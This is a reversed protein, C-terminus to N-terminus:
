HKAAAKNNNLYKKALVFLEDKTISNYDDMITRSWELQQPHKVSGSLVTNLWYNNNRMMDKISTIMPDVARRLEDNNPGTEALDSVIKKIENIIMNIDEPAVQVFAQFVGYGSYVRSARNYAVFSYAAGLKERIKERLRDSLIDALVSFLRTRHIDWLDETPYAVVVLGKDIKTAVNIELSQAVPFEPSDLRKQLYINRRPSLTGLYKSVIEITSNVDFDGVVSVELTGHRLPSDVWSKVDDLTLNKFIDYPPLGFRSDGGALFRKGTLNIAGDISSSLKLYKQQFREMTLKCADERYGPDTLHAYLLQFLLRLEKSVTKGRFYFSEEGVGFFVNTNKGAMAREIEDRDLTGLGSENIVARSLFALGPRNLPEVSRGSGFSLNVLVEDAEFDTKKLNLRVNNEFDVQVIGLDAIVKRSIVKGNKQPEPLYPFVVSEMKVPRLVKMSSSKNFAALILEEPDVGAAGLDVNGTVLVLRHEPQWIKIFLDHVDKLTLSDIVPAFLNKKQEPSMSVMDTNLDRIIERSLAGSDRTQAKNFVKDLDSLFDKKVRELESKTFGYKLAKRLNQEILWLTKEWNEPSSKATIEAFEIQGMFVGSMISASTFPTDPKGVLLDLRNQVIRNAIDQVLLRKQLDLSDPKKTVKKVVEISVTTKGSEKEFHYFTKVGNHNVEGIYPEQGAPSRASLDSFKKEILSVATKVEFDGVMVLIMKEPCYWTDYFEKLLKQDANKIVDEMGIPFRKSIKAEPFEFKMTSIFTRYSVSDRTRKEALVVKSERDIESELLLASDAFDKLVAIGKEISKRSGQPLLIDYVTEYYGTHANADPGFKMGISQFYKVLQGPKFHASGCFVMHELFHALGQQEDTENISGVQVNLHMSVRGKPKHNEMLVYRFGNPLRGFVLSPDPFLESKEHPWRHSSQINEAADAVLLYKLGSIGVNNDKGFNIAPFSLLINVAVTYLVFKAAFNRFKKKPM